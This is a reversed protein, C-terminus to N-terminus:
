RQPINWILVTGDTHETIIKRSDPSFKIGGAYLKTHWPFTKILKGTSPKWLRLHGKYSWPYTALMKGDPSYFATGIQSSRSVHQDKLHIPKGIPKGTHLNWLRVKDYEIM